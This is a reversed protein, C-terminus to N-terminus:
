ESYRIGIVQAETRMIFELIKDTISTCITYVEVIVNAYQKSAWFDVLGGNILKGTAICICFAIIFKGIFMVIAMIIGIIKAIIMYAAFSLIWLKESFAQKGETLHQGKSKMYLRALIGGYPSCALLCVLLIIILAVIVGDVPNTAASIVIGIAIINIFSFISAKMEESM